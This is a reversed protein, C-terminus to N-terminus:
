ANAGGCIDLINWSNKSFDDRVVLNQKSNTRPNRIIVPHSEGLPCNRERTPSRKLRSRPPHPGFPSDRRVGTLSRVPQCCQDPVVTKLGRRDRRCPWPDAQPIKKTEASLPSNPNTGIPEGVWHSRVQSSSVQQTCAVRATTWCGAHRSQGGSEGVLWGAEAHGLAHLPSHRTLM